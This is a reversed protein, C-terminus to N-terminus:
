TIEYKEGRKEGIKLTKCWVNVHGPETPNIMMKADFIHSLEIFEELDLYPLQLNILQLHASHADSLMGMFDAFFTPSSCISKYELRRLDPCYKFQRFMDTNSSSEYM